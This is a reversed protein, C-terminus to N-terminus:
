IHASTGHRGLYRRQRAVSVRRWAPGVSHDGRAGNSQAGAAIRVSSASALMKNMAASSTKQWTAGADNLRYIGSNGANTFLRNPDAPDAALDRAPGAPLGSAAAGSVLDFKKGGDTSRWVGSKTSSPSIVTAVVITAGRPAVASISLGDFVGGAPLPTWTAGGDTTRLLGTLRADSGFSSFGGAGAVLTQATSDTPDFALAGISLSAHRDTQPSWVPSAAMANGTKWIGGNVAGVYAVNADSPHAAIANVAGAVEGSAINEVQGKTNPGPAQAVWVLQGAAPVRTLSSALLLGALVVSKVRDVM